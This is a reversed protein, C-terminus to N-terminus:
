FGNKLEKIALTEKQVIIRTPKQVGVIKNINNSIRVIIM